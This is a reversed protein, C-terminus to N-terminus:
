LLLCLLSPSYTPSKMASKPKDAIDPKGRWRCLTQWFGYRRSSCISSYPQPVPAAGNIARARDTYLLGQQMRLEHMRSHLPLSTGSDPLSLSLYRRGLGAVLMALMIGVITM